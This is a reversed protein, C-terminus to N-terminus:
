RGAEPLRRGLGILTEGQRTVPNSAADLHGFSARQSCPPLVETSSWWASVAPRKASAESLSLAAQQLPSRSRQVLASRIPRGTHPGRRPPTETTWRSTLWRRSEQHTGALVWGLLVCRHTKILRGQGFKEVRESGTIADIQDTVGHTQHHLLQDLELDGIVNASGSIFAGLSSRIFAVTVTWAQQRSLGAVDLQLDRLQRM